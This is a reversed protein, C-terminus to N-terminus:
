SSTDASATTNTYNTVNSSTTAEAVNDEAPTSSSSTDASATTNTYNTVNSSTTAEAVNDEAPTSSSSTDASATTNDSIEAYAMPWYSSSITYPTIVLTSLILLAFVFSLPQRLKRIKFEFDEFYLFLFVVFPVFLILVFQSETESVTLNFLNEFNFSFNNEYEVSLPNNLTSFEDLLNNQDSFELFSEFNFINFLNELNFSQLQIDFPQSNFDDDLFLELMSNKKRDKLKDIQSIRDINTQPQVVFPKLYIQNEVLSSKIDLSESFFVFKTFSDQEDIVNASEISKDDAPKNSELGINEDLSVSIIKSQTSSSESNDPVTIDIHHDAFGFPISSTILFAIIFLSLISKM